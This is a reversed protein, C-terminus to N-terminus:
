NVRNPKYIIKEQNSYTPYMKLELEKLSKLYRPVKMYSGKGGTGDYVQKVLFKKPFTDKSWKILTTRTNDNNPNTRFVSKFSITMDDDNSFKEKNFDLEIGAANLYEENMDAIYKKIKELSQTKKLEKSLNKMRQTPYLHMYKNNLDESWKKMNFKTKEADTMKKIIPIGLQQSQHSAAYLPPIMGGPLPVVAQKSMYMDNDRLSKDSVTIRWGLFLRYM